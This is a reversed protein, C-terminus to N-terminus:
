KSPPVSNKNAQANPRAASAPIDRATPVPASKVPDPHPKYAKSRGEDPTANNPQPLLSQIFAGVGIGLLGIVAARYTATSQEKALRLQLEYSLLIFAVSDKGQTRAADAAAQALKHASMIAREDPDPVGDFGVDYGEQDSGEFSRAARLLKRRIFKRIPESTNMSAPTGSHTNALGLTQALRGM